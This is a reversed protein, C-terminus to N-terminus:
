LPKRRFSLKEIRSAGEKSRMALDVELRDSAARRFVVGGFAAEDPTIRTLAIRNPKDREEWATFDPHFHRFTFRLSGEWEEIAFLQYFGPKGDARALRFTGLMVGDRPPSWTDAIAGGLGEGEWHGQMWALQELRAPPPAPKADSQALVLPPISLLFAAALARISM